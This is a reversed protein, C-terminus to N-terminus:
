SFIIVKESNFKDWKHGNFREYFGLIFIPSVFNIFAYGVNCKNQFDIPLYFFDYQGKHREDIEALLMKQNYKNPINKIMLTTRADRKLLVNSLSILFKAREEEKEPNRRRGSNSPNFHMGYGPQTQQVQYYPDITEEVPAFAPDYYSAAHPPPPAYYQYPQMFMYPTGAPFTFQNMHDFNYSKTHTHLPTPATIRKIPQTRLLQPNSSYGPLDQDSKGSNSLAEDSDINSTSETHLFM